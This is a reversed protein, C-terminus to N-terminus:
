TASRPRRWPIVVRAAVRRLRRRWRGRRERARAHYLELPELAAPQPLQRLISPMLQRLLLLEERELEGRAVAQVTTVRRMATAAPLREFAADYASVLRAASDPNKAALSLLARLRALTFAYLAADDLAYEERIWEDLADRLDPESLDLLGHLRRELGEAQDLQSSGRLAAKRTPERVM